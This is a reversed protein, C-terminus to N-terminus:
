GYIDKNGCGNRDDYIICFIKNEEMYVSSCEMQTIVDWLAVEDNLRMKEWTVNISITVSAYTRM